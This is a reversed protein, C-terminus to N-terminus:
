SPGALALVLSFPFSCDRQPTLTHESRISIRELWFLPRRTKWLVNMQMLTLVARDQRRLQLVQLCTCGTYLAPVNAQEVQESEEVDITPGTHALHTLHSAIRNRNCHSQPCCSNGAM